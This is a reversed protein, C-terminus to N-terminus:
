HKKLKKCWNKITKLQPAEKGFEEQFRRRGKECDSAICYAVLTAIEENQLDQCDMVTINFIPIFHMDYVCNM